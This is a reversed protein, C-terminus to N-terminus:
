QYIAVINEVPTDITLYHSPGLILGGKNGYLNRLRNVERKIELPTGFAILRQSDLGGHFCINNGFRSKLEALQMDKASVQVPDLIDVGMDILDPIIATCNGCVHYAVILNYRKAEEIIRRHWPKYYRRWTDPSIMLDEQAAFDDWIGYLDIKSGLKALTMRCFELCFEGVKGVLMDAYSHDAVLDILMQEIGRLFISTMFISNMMATNLFFRESRDIESLKVIRHDRIDQDPADIVVRYHEFDFWEIEPFRYSRLDEMEDKGLLPSNHHFELEGNSPNKIPKIGWVFFHDVDYICELDPGIYLPVYTSFAGLTEGDSYNDAGLEVILDEWNEELNDLHFYRLLTKSVQPHARYMMPLHPVTDHCIARTLIEKRTM